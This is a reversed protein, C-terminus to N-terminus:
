EVLTFKTGYAIVGEEGNEYLKRLVGVVKDGVKYNTKSGVLQGTVRIGNEMEVIVVVINRQKKFSEPPTTVVTWTVIKGVCGLHKYRRNSSRWVEVANKWYM